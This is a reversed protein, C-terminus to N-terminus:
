VCRALIPRNYGRGIVEGDCVVVAGVPVEGAAGAQAAQELALRMFADDEANSTDM